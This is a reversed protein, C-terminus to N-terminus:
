DNNINRAKHDTRKPTEPLSGLVEAITTAGLRSTKEHFDLQPSLEAIDLGVVKGTQAVYKLLPFMECPALGNSQPASVGPAASEAFVDLCVSIYLHEHKKIANDLFAKQSALSSNHIQEASLYHVGWDNAREFLSKTNALPQIGLCYYDFLLDHQLCYQQMQWYSTGSTGQYPHHPERTDFHADFNILGLTPYHKILGSFHAWAIEHGGGLAITSHGAAHCNSVLAAFQQQAMELQEDDCRINGIDLFTNPNHSALKALHKRLIDPGDKAGTRGLNRRIGEDCCFGLIVPLQNDGLLEKHIDVCQVNQCFREYPLSDSRGQWLAPDPPSYNIIKTFM